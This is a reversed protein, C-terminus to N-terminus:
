VYLRRLKERIADPDLKNQVGSLVIRLNKIEAEKYLLYAVIPEPGMFIFKAAELKELCYNDCWKEFNSMSVEFAQAAGSFKSERIYSLFQSLGALSNKILEEKTFTPSDILARNLFDMNKGLKTCRLAIKLNTLDCIDFILSKVFDNEIENAKNLMFCFMYSDILVDVLQGDMTRILLDYAEHACEQLEKPLLDFNKNQVGEKIKFPDFVSPSLFYKEPEIKTVSSKICAKLNHFDNKIIFPYFITEDPAIEKIYEWVKGMEDKLLGGEDNESFGRAKLSTLADEYSKAMLLQEMDAFSLLKIENTRVSAVAFAYSKQKM